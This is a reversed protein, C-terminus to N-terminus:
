AVEMASWNMRGVEVHVDKDVAAANEAVAVVLVAVDAVVEGVVVAIWLRVVVGVEVIMDSPAIGYGLGSGEFYDAEAWKGALTVIECDLGTRMESVAEASCSLVLIEAGIGCCRCWCVWDRSQREHRAIGEVAVEHSALALM